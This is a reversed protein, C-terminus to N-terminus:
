CGSCRKMLPLMPCIRDLVGARGTIVALLAAEPVELAPADDALPLEDELSEVLTVVLASPDTVVVTVSALPLITETLVIEVPSLPLADEVIASLEGPLRKLM